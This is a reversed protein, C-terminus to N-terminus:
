KLEVRHRITGAKTSTVVIEAWQPGPADPSLRVAWALDRRHLDGSAGRGPLHGIEQRSTEGLLLVGPSASISVVVPPAARNALARETVHTPLAGANELTARITIGGHEAVTVVDRLQLRPLRAAWDVYLDAYVGAIRELYKGPPPTARAFKVFGGIEVRGLTPHAFPKWPVFLRGGFEADSLRLLEADSVEGDADADGPAMGHEAAFAFAGHMEYVWDILVGFGDELRGVRTLAVPGYPSLMKAGGPLSGLEAAFAAMAAVDGPPLATDARGAYPRFVQASGPGGHGDLVLGINPHATLFEAIARTEPESLASEGAGEQVAEPKWDFPFNRNLAVGGIADENIRGDRDNDIGESYTVWEGPERGARRVLLRPDAPDTRFPGSPARVRMTLIRGDGDLDEPGDEDAKQDRDEDRPRSNVASAGRMPTTVYQDAMFPNAMPVLYLTTTDVLATVTPDTGHGAVARRALELLVETAVPEDGDLNGLAFLAPKDAAAGTKQNTIEILWLDFGRLDTGISSVRALGPHAAALRDLATKVDRHGHYRDFTLLTQSAPASVFVVAAALALLRETIRM